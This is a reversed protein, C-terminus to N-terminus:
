AHMPPQPRWTITTVGSPRARGQWAAAVSGPKVKSLTRVRERLSMQSVLSANKFNRPVAQIGLGQWPQSRASISQPPQRQWAKARAPLAAAVSGTQANDGLWAFTAAAIALSALEGRVGYRKRRM